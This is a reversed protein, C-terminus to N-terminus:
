LSLANELKMSFEHFNSAICNAEYEVAEPLGGRDCVIVPIGLARAEVAVRGFAENWNSPMIVVKAYSFPISSDTVWGMHNINSEKSKYSQNKGFVYFQEDVFQAALKEFTDIGKLLDDGILVIGKKEPSCMNKNKSYGLKLKEIDVYPHTVTSDVGFKDRVESSIFRSNSIINSAKRIAKSNDHCFLKTFPFQILQYILKAYYMKGKHYNPFINLSTEDRIYYTSKIKKRDAFNIAVPAWLGQTIVEDFDISLDDLFKLIKRKNLVYETNNFLKFSKYDNISFIGKVNIEDLLFSSSSQKENIIYVQSGRRKKLEELLSREAGGLVYPFNKCIVVIKTM